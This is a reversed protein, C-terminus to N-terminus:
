VLTYKDILMSDKLVSPMISTAYEGHESELSGTTTFRYEKTSPVVYLICCSGDLKESAEFIGSSKLIDYSVESVQDLNFFKNYAHALVVKNRLDLILGRCLRSFDSWKNDYQCEDMYKLMVVDPFKESTIVYVFREQAHLKLKELDWLDNTDLYEKPSIM